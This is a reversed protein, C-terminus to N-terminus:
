AFTSILTKRDQGIKGSKKVTLWYKTWATTVFQRNEDNIGEPIIVNKILVENNVRKRQFNLFFGMYGYHHSYPSM